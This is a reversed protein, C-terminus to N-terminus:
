KKTNAEMYSKCNIGQFGTVNIKFKIPHKIQINKEEPTYLIRTVNPINQCSTEDLFAFYETKINTTKLKKLIKKHIKQIHTTNLSHNEM